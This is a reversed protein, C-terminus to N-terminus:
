ASPRHRTREIFDILDDLKYEHCLGIGTGGKGMPDDGRLQYAHTYRNLTPVMERMVINKLLGPEYRNTAIAVDVGANIAPLLLEAWQFHNFFTEDWSDYTAGFHGGPCHTNDVSMWPSQPLGALYASRVATSKHAMLYHMAREAGGSIGIVDIRAWPHAPKGQLDVPMLLAQEIALIDGLERILGLDGDRTAVSSEGTDRDNFTIIPYGRIALRALAAGTQHDGARLGLEQLASCCKYHGNLALIVSSHRFDRAKDENALYAVLDRTDGREDEVHITLRQTSVSIDEHNTDFGAPYILTGYEPQGVRVLTLRPVRSTVLRAYAASLRAAIQRRALGRNTPQETIWGGRLRQYVQNHARDISKEVADASNNAPYCLGNRNIVSNSLNVPIKCGPAGRTCTWEPCACPTVPTPALPHHCRDDPPAAALLLLSLIGVTLMMRPSLSGRRM